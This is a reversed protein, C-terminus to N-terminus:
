RVYGKLEVYNGHEVSGAKFVALVGRRTYRGTVETLTGYTTEYRGTLTHTAGECGVAAAQEATVTRLAYLARTGQVQFTMTESVYV